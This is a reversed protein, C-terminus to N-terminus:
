LSFSLDVIQNGSKGVKVDDCPPVWMRVLFPPPYPAFPITPEEKSILPTEHNEFNPLAPHDPPKSEFQKLSIQALHWFKEKFYDWYVDEEPFEYCLHLIRNSFDKISEDPKM